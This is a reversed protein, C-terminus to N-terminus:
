DKPASKLASVTQPRADKVLAAFADEAARVRTLADDLKIRELFNGYLEDRMGKGTTIAYEIAAVAGVLIPHPDASSFRGVFNIPGVLRDNPELKRLPERAVRVITDALAANLYRDILGDIYKELPEEDWLRERAYLIQGVASLADRALTNIAPDAIADHILTYGRGAGVYATIAHAMNHAWLKRRHIARFNAAPRIWPSFPPAAKGKWAAADIYLPPMVRECRLPECLTPAEPLLAEDVAPVFAVHNDLYAELDPDALAHGVCRKLRALIDDDISFNEVFVINLPEAIRFRYRVRVMSAITRGLSLLQDRGISVFVHDIRLTLTALHEDDTSAFSSVRDITYVEPGPRPQVRYSRLGRMEAVRQENRDVLFLSHGDRACHFGLLALGTAGMGIIITERGVGSDRRRLYSEFRKREATTESTILDESLRDLSLESEQARTRGVAGGPHTKTAFHEQTTHILHALLIAVADGVALNVFSALIKQGPVPVMRDDDLGEGAVIIKGPLRQALMSGPSATILACDAGKGQVSELIRALSRTEGSYSVFVVLDEQKIHGLDGVPIDIPSLAFANVGISTLTAAVKDAVDLSSGAGTLYVTGGRRRSALIRRILDLAQEIFGPREVIKGVASALQAFVDLGVAVDDFGHDPVSGRFEISEGPHDLQFKDASHEFQRSVVVAVATGCALANTTSTTPADPVPAPNTRVLSSLAWDAGVALESEIDGTIAVAQCGKARISPLIGLLEAAKGSYSVLFVLDDRQVGTLNEANAATLRVHGSRIGLNEFIRSLHRAIADSKGVGVFIVMKGRQHAARVARVVDYFHQPRALLEHPLTEGIEAQMTSLAQHLKGELWPRQMEVDAAAAHDAISPELIANCQEVDVLQRMALSDRLVEIPVAQLGGVSTFLRRGAKLEQEEAFVMCRAIFKGSLVDGWTSSSHILEEPDCFTCCEPTIRERLWEPDIALYSLAPCNVFTLEDAAGERKSLRCASFGLGTGLGLYLIPQLDVPWGQHAFDPRHQSRLLGALQARGDNCVLVDLERETYVGIFERVLASPSTGAFSGLDRGTGSAVVDRPHAFRGPQGIVIVDLVEYPEPLALYESLRRSLTQYFTEPALRRTPFTERAIVEETLDGNRGMVGAVIHVKTGGIDVALLVPIHHRQHVERAREAWEEREIAPQAHWAGLAGADASDTDLRLVTPVTAASMAQMRLRAIQPLLQGSYKVTGVSGGLLALRAGRVADFADGADPSSTKLSGHALALLLDGLLEGQLRYIRKGVEVAARRTEVDLSKLQM